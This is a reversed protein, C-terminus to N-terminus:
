CEGAPKWRYRYGIRANTAAKTVRLQFPRGNVDRPVAFSSWIFFQQTVNVVQKTLEAAVGNTTALFFQVSVSAASGYEFAEVCLLLDLPPTPQTGAIMAARGFDEVLSDALAGDINVETWPSTPFAAM